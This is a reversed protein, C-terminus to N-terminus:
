PGFRRILTVENGADNFHVDDMFSKVLLWGTGSTGELEQSDGDDFLSETDLPNGEHRVISRVERPTMRVNVEIRRKSFPAQQSRESLMRYYGQGADELHYADQLQQPTFELNGYYLVNHIATDLAVGVRVRDTDDGLHLDAMGNQVYGVIAMVPPAAAPLSFRAEVDTLFAALQAEARGASAVELVDSLTDVLDRALNKKPVYSAAGCQLAQVATEESGFATMLVVPVKPYERRIAVVLDLGNMEPMDLDTLVAAPVHHRIASLAEVGNRVTAVRYGASELLGRIQAAQTSSDEAVLIQAM